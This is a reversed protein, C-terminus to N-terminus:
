VAPRPRLAVPSHTATSAASPGASHLDRVGYGRSGNGSPQPAFEEAAGLEFAIKGEAIERLATDEPQLKELSEVLARVGRKLQKVRM